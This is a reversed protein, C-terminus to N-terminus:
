QVSAALKQGLEFCAALEDDNPMWLQRHADAIMEFGSKALSDHVDRAGEGSWGHSGFALAKKGKFRLGTIEKLLSALPSLMGNNITSSGIAIAKSKFVDAAVDSNDVHPVSHIKVTLSPDFAAIGEGIAHAMNRTTGWMSDYAITIQHEQYDQCWALYKEVIQMPNKRWIIGHSPCIIEIPLNMEMIQALKKQMGQNFPQLINAYYKLSEDWLQCQDVLDNFLPTAAYHQGFADNSFLINQNTLYCLMSDPWHLMTMEVFILEDKGLPLRDGTKMVNLNWNSHYQGRLSKVANASCYIPVNPIRRMLEPLAGSHDPECHNMVIADIKQLDIVKELNHVFEVAFPTWVTDILVTKEDEILFFNYSSGHHTSFDEGHFTTLEWDIKGVYSINPSIKLPKAQM